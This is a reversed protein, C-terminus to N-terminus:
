LSGNVTLKFFSSPDVAVTLLKGVVYFPVPRVMAYAPEGQQSFAFFPGGWPRDKVEYLRSASNAVSQEPRAWFDPEWCFWAARSLYAVAVRHEM